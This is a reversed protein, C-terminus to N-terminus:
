QGGEVPVQAAPFLKKCYGQITQVITPSGPAISADEAVLRAVEYAFYTTGAALLVSSFRAWIIKTAVVYVVAALATVVASVKVYGAQPAGIKNELARAGKDFYGTIAQAM